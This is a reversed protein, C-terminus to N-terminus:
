GSAGPTFVYAGSSQLSATFKVADNYTGNDEYNALYFDGVLTAGTSWEVTIDELFVQGTVSAELLREDKTVGEISIDVSSQGTVDLLTRYGDDCDSTIDVPENNVTVTKTQAGSALVDSGEKITLTRGSSAAM